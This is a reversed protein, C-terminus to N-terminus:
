STSRAAMVYGAFAFCILSVFIPLGHPVADMSLGALTPGLLAGLGWALSMLAYIAVLASGQFRSGVVTMMITYIGVFVGGWLFILPYALAPTGMVFPWVLAGIGSALSLMLVLRRRDMRDGLWGIPLQLLIAGVMLTTVLLTAAREDWGAGMAYLVVFSLGATEVAANLTASGAAIPALRLYRLLSGTAPEDYTPAEVRSAIMLVLAAVVIASGALFPLAGGSGTWALLMPGLAFGLSLAATYIAMTRARHREDSLQNVWTESMVFLIESAMGLCLRLPFWLWIGPALPFLALTLAAAALAVIVLRRAGHRRALRPLVPAVALVGAAYLAANLGVVTEEYGRATLQLAILPASLGYTLGFIAATAVVVASAAMRRRPQLVSESGTM